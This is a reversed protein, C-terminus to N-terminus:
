PHAEFDQIVKGKGAADYRVWVLSHPDGRGVNWTPVEGNDPMKLSALVPAQLCPITEKIANTGGCKGDADCNMGTPCDANSTCAPFTFARTIRTCTTMTGTAPTVNPDIVQCTQNANSCQWLNDDPGLYIHDPRHPTTTNDQSLGITYLVQDYTSSTPDADVVTITSGHVTTSGARVGEAKDDVFLRKEDKSLTLGYPGPGVRIEAKLVAKLGGTTANKSLEVRRVMNDDASTVWVRSGDKSFRSWIPFPGTGISAEEKSTATSLFPVWGGIEEVTGDAKTVTRLHGGVTPALYRPPNTADMFALPPSEFALYPYGEFKGYPFVKVVKDDAAPDFWIVGGKAYCETMMYKDSAINMHHTPGGCEIKKDPKLTRANIKYFWTAPPTAPAVYAFSYRAYPVLFAQYVWQGDPSVGLAHSSWNTKTAGTPIPTDVTRSLIPLFVKNAPCGVNNKICNQVADYDFVHVGNMTATALFSIGTNVYIYTRNTTSPLLDTGTSDLKEKLSIGFETELSPPVPVCQGTQELTNPGCVLVKDPVCKGADLHTAPGCAVVSEPLCQTGDLKTGTGCTTVSEPVCKTGDLKTGPGCTSPAPCAMLLAAAVAPLWLILRANIDPKM